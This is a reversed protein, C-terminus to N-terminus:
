ILWFYCGKNPQYLWPNPFVLTLVLFGKQFAESPYSLLGIFDIMYLGDFAVLLLYILGGYFDDIDHFSMTSWYGVMSPLADIFNM